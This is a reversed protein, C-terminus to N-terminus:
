KTLILKGNGTIRLRYVQEEHEIVLETHQTFLDKSAIRGADLGKSISAIWPDSPSSDM